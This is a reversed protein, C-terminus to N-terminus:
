STVATLSTTTRMRPVTNVALSISPSITFRFLVKGSGSAATGITMYTATTPTGATMEGFEMTAAPNMVNGAITFGGAGRAVALRSYGTYVVESTSQNGAAGPDATHLAVYLNTLPSSGANDALGSISMANFILKLLDNAFTNSIM